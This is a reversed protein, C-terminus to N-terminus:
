PYVLDDDDESGPAEITYTRNAQLPEEVVSLHGKGRRRRSREAPPPEEDGEQKDLGYEELLRRREDERIGVEFFPDFIARAFCALLFLGFLGAVVGM